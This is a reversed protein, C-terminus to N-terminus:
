NAVGPSEPKPYDCCAGACGMSYASSFGPADITPEGGHDGLYCRKTRRHYDVSRCQVLKGCYDMCQEWSDVQEMVAETGHRKGCVMRFSEGYPTNYVQNNSGPCETSCLKIEDDPHDATPPDVLFAYHYKSHDITLFDGTGFFICTDTDGPAPNSDFGVSRCRGSPEQACADMCAGFNDAWLGFIPGTPVETCCQIYFHHGDSAEYLHGNNAACDYQKGATPSMNQVTERVAPCTSGGDFDGSDDDEFDGSDDDDFDGSDDDDFDGTDDDGFDGSDDDGFDGSDQAAVMMALLMLVGLVLIARGFPTWAKM